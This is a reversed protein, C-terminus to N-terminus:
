RGLIKTESEEHSKEVDTNEHSVLNVLPGVQVSRAPENAEQLFQMENQWLLLVIDVVM